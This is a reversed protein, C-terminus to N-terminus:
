WETTRIGFCEKPSRKKTPKKKPKVEKRLKAKLVARLVDKTEQCEKVDAQLATGDAQCNKLAVDALAKGRECEELDAKLESIKGKVQNWSVPEKEEPLTFVKMSACSTLLFGFTILFIIPSSHKLKKM